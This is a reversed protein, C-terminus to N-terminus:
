GQSRSKDELLRERPSESTGFARASPATISLSQLEAGARPPAAREKETPGPPLAWLCRLKPPLAFANSPGLSRHPPRYGRAGRPPRRDGPEGFQRNGGVAALTGCASDGLSWPSSNNPFTDRSTNAALSRPELAPFARLDLAPPQRATM